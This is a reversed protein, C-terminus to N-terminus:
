HDYSDRSPQPCPEAYAELTFKTDGIHFTCEQGTCNSNAMCETHVPAEVNEGIHKIAECMCDSANLPLEVSPVATYKVENVISVM